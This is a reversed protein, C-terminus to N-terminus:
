YEYLVNTQSDHYVKYWYCECTSVISIAVDNHTYISRGINRSARLVIDDISLRERHFPLLTFLHICARRDLRECCWPRLGSANRFLAIFPEDGLGVGSDAGSGVGTGIDLGIATIGHHRFRCWWQCRAWWHGHCNQCVEGGIDGSVLTGIGGKLM